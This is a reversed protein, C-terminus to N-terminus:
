ATCATATRIPSCASLGYTPIGAPTLFSRRHRGALMMRVQPVGAVDESALKEAPGLVKPDLPPAPPPASAARPM